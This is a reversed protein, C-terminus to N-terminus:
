VLAVCPFLERQQPSGVPFYEIIEQRPRGVARVLYSRDDEVPEVLLTGKLKLCEQAKVPKFAAVYVDRRKTSPYLLCDNHDPPLDFYWKSVHNSVRYLHELGCEVERCFEDHLFDNMINIKLREAETFRVDSEVGGILPCRLERVAEYAFIVYRSDPKARCEHLTVSPEGVVTYLVPEGLDNVRGLRQVHEPSPPLADSINSGVQPPIETGAKRARYLPAGESIRRGYTRTITGQGDGERYLTLLNFILDALQKADLNRINTRRFDRIRDHLEEATVNALAQKHNVLAGEFAPNPFENM